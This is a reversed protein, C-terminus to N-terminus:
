RYLGTTDGMMNKLFKEESHGGNAIEYFQCHEYNDFLGFKM